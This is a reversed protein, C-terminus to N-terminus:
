ACLTSCAQRKSLAGGSQKSAESGPGFIGKRKPRAVGGAAGGTAQRPRPARHKTSKLTNLAARAPAGDGEDLM